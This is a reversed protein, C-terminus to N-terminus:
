RTSFRLSTATGAKICTYIRWLDMLEHSKSRTASAVAMNKFDDQTFCADLAVVVAGAVLEAPEEAGCTETPSEPLLIGEGPGLLSRAAPISMSELFTKIPRAHSLVLRSGLKIIIAANARSMVNYTRKMNM